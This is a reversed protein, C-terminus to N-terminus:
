KVAAVELLKKATKFDRPFPAEIILIERDPKMIELRTSHLALREFGLAPPRKPAYLKDCVIPNHISKFHVRIQHTRGTKPKVEVFSYGERDIKGKLLVTYNTVAERMEGRAERGVAFQRFDRRGRGIPKSIVGEFEAIEGYVFAHYTKHIERDHFQAKLFEFTKQNKAILLVGSTDRDIRHVIGPRYIVEGTSLTTPEGVEKMDPYKKIIWDVVSPEKTKGDYHVVLGAPKAIALM